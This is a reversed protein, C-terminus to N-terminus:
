SYLRQHHQSLRDGGTIDRYIDKVLDTAESTAAIKKARIDLLSDGKELRRTYTREEDRNAGRGLVEQYIQEIDDYYSEDPRDRRNWDRDRRNVKIEVRQDIDDGRRDRREINDRDRRRDGLEWEWDSRDPDGSREITHQENSRVVDAQVPTALGISILLATSLIRFKM